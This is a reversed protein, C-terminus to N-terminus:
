GPCLPSNIGRQSLIQINHFTAPRLTLYLPTTQRGLRLTGTCLSTHIPRQKVICGNSQSSCEYSSLARYLLRCLYKLKFVFLHHPAHGENNSRKSDWTKWWCRRLQPNRGSIPSPSYGAYQTCLFPLKWIKQCSLRAAEVAVHALVVTVTCPVVVYSVSMKSSGSTVVVTIMCVEKKKVPKLPVGERHYLQGLIRGDKNNRRWRATDM